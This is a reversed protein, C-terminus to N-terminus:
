GLRVVCAPLHGSLVLAECELITEAISRLPDKQPRGLVFAFSAHVLMDADARM